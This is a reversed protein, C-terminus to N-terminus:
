KQTGQKDKPPPQEGHGGHSHHMFLHMMPCAILLLFPLYYLVGGLHARHEMVLFYGAVLLFGVLIWKFTSNSTRGQQSHHDHQM